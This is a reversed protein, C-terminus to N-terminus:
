LAFNEGLSVAQDGIIQHNMIPRTLLVSSSMRARYRSGNM